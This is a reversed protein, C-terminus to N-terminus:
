VGTDYFQINHSDNHVKQAIWQNKRIGYIHKEWLYEHSNKLWQFWQMKRVAYCSLASNCMKSIIKYKVAMLTCYVLDNYISRIKWDNYQCMLIHAIYLSLIHVFFQCKVLILWKTQCINVTPQWCPLWPSITVWKKERQHNTLAVGFIM